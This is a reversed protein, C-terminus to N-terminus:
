GVRKRPYGEFALGEAAFRAGAAELLRRGLGLRRHRPAVLLLAVAGAQAGAATVCLAAPRGDVYALFGEVEGRLMRDAFDERQERADLPQGAEVGDERRQGSLGTAELTADDIEQELFALTDELLAPTLPRLFLDLM